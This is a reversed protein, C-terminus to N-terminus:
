MTQLLPRIDQSKNDIKTFLAIHDDEHLQVANFTKWCQGCRYYRVKVGEVIRQGYHRNGAHDCYPCNMGKRFPNWLMTYIRFKLVDSLM